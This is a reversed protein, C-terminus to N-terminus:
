RKRAPTCTVQLPESDITISYGREFNVLWARGTWPDPTAYHVEAILKSDRTLRRTRPDPETLRWASKELASQLAARPWL